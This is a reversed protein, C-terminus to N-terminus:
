FKRIQCNRLSCMFSPCPPTLNFDIGLSCLEQILGQINQSTLLHLLLEFAACLCTWGEHDMLDATSDATCSDSKSVAGTELTGWVIGRSGNLSCLRRNLDEGTRSSVEGITGEM